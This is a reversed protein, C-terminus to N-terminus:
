THDPAAPEEPLLLTATTGAGPQSHLALEAGLAKALQQTIVLGLGSGPVPGREQGLREFPRFLRQLQEPTMGAGTDAVALETGGSVRRARLCLQSGRGAYKIANSGLNLL